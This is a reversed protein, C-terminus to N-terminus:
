DDATQCHERLRSAMWLGEGYGAGALPLIGCWYWVSGKRGEHIVWSPLTAALHLWESVGWIVLALVFVHLIGLKAIYAMARSNGLVDDWDNFAYGLALSFVLATYGGAVSVHAGWPKEAFSIYLIFWVPITIVHAWRGLWWTSKRDVLSSQEEVEDQASPLSDFM